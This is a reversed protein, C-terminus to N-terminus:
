ISFVQELEQSASGLRQKLFSPAASVATSHHRLPVGSYLLSSLARPRSGACGPGIGPRDSRSDRLVMWNEGKYVTATAM